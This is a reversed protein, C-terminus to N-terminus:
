VIRYGACLIMFSVYMDDIIHEPPPQHLRRRIAFLSGDAGMVSGTADELRKIAEELRWYLSGSAATVSDSGNVYILNGCVCGVAPDAFYPRLRQLAMPDLMVNADTFVIISARARAVLRNMGATKGRRESAVLLTIRDAYPRLIEATRDTAADVYVLIELGPELERLALLNRMKADIVAAENYACMCIAVSAEASAAPPRRTQRPQRLLRLAFLSLPYTVFPHMALLLAITGLWFFAEAM